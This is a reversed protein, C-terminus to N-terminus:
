RGVVTVWGADPAYPSGPAQKLGSDSVTYVILQDGRHTYLHDTGPAM